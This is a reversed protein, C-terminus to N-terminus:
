GEGERQFLERVLVDLPTREIALDRVALRAFVQALFPQVRAAPVAFSLAGASSRLLQVDAGCLEALVAPDPEAAHPEL